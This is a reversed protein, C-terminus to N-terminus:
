PRLKSISQLHKIQCTPVLPLFLVKLLKKKENPLCAGTPGPYRTGANRASARGPPCSGEGNGYSASPGSTGTLSRAGPVALIWPKPARPSCAPLSWQGRCARGCAGPPKGPCSATAAVATRPPIRCRACGALRAKRSGLNYHATVGAAEARALVRNSATVVTPVLGQQPSVMHLGAAPRQCFFSYFCLDWGFESLKSPTNAPITPKRMCFKQTNIEATKTITRARSGPETQNM